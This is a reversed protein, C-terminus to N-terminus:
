RRRSQFIQVLEGSQTTIPDTNGDWKTLTGEFQKEFGKIFRQLKEHLIVLNKRVLLVVVCSEGNFQRDGVQVLFNLNQFEIQGPPEKGQVINQAVMLVSALGTGKLDGDKLESKQDFSYAFVCISNFIVFLSQVEAPWRFEDTTRIAYFSAGVMVMGVLGVILGLAVAYRGVTEVVLKASLGIGLGLVFAGLLAIGLNRRIIGETNRFTNMLYYLVVLAAGYITFSFTYAIIYPLIIILFICAAFLVTLYPFRRQKVQHEFLYVFATFAAFRLPVETKYFLDSLPELDEFFPLFYFISAGCFSCFVITLLLPLPEKARRYTAFFIGAVEGLLVSNLVACIIEFIFYEDM